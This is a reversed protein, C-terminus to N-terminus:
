KWKFFKFGNMEATQLLRFGIRDLTKIVHFVKEKESNM